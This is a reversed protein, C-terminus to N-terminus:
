FSQVQSVLFVITLLYNFFNLNILIEAVLCFNYNNKPHGFIEEWTWIDACFLKEKLIKKFELFQNNTPGNFSSYISHTYIETIIMMYCFELIYM